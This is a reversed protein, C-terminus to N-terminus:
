DVYSYFNGREATRIKHCNACVIECKNIELMLVEFKVEGIKDAISYSKNQIHDFELLRIDSINCDICSQTKLWQFFIIRQALRWENAKKKIAEKNKEYHARRDIRLCSKCKYQLGTGRASFQSEDQPIQCKTCTKM